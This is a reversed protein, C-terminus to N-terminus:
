LGVILDLRERITVEINNSYKLFHACHCAPLNVEAYVFTLNANFISAEKCELMTLEELPSVPPLDVKCSIM